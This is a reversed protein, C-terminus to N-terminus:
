TDSPTRCLRATPSPGSRSRCLMLAAARRVACPRVQQADVNFLSFSNNAYLAALVNSSSPHFALATVLAPGPPLTWHLVLRDVDYVCVLGSACGVVLWQTDANFAVLTAAAGDEQLGRTASAHRKRHDISDRVVVRGDLLDLVLLLGRSTCAAVCRDDVSFALAHCPSQAEVPLLVKSVAAGEAGDSVVRWMRTSSASSALVVDGRGSLACCVLSHDDRLRITARLTCRSADSGEVKRRKTEHYSDLDSKAVYDVTWLDLRSQHMLLLTRGDTSASVLGMPPTPYLTVPRYKAFDDVFYVCLKTDLGGSLLLPGLSATLPCAHQDALPSPTSSPTSSPVVCLAFVDHSHIRHSTTYVWGAEGDSNAPARRLCTVRADVGSAFVAREDASAALCLVQAEHQHITLTLVGLRGDWVQVNGRSDGSVVTSDSLVVLSHMRTDIGRSVDGTMRLVGRGSAEDICRITGDACGYMLQPLLPHYAICLIRSGSTPMTKTYELSGDFSFIRCAGDECGVALLASRPNRAMCWAAGGHTDRISKTSLTQFCYEFVFGRLSAGFLRGEGWQVSQLQFDTRGPFRLTPM